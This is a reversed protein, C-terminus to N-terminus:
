SSNVSCSLSMLHKVSPHVGFCFPNGRNPMHPDTCDNGMQFALSFFGPSLKCLATGAQAPNSCHHTQEREPRQTCVCAQCPSLERQLRGQSPQLAPHARSAKSHLLIQLPYPFLLLPHPAPQAAGAPDWSAPFWTTAFETCNCGTIICDWCESQTLGLGVCLQTTVWCKSLVKSARVRNGWLTITSGSQACCLQAPLALSCLCQLHVGLTWKSNLQGKSYNYKLHKQLAAQCGLM